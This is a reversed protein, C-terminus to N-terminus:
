YRYDNTYKKYIVGAEHWQGSSCMRAAMKFDDNGKKYLDRTVTIWKPSIRYAYQTGAFYGGQKTMEMQSPCNAIAQIQTKGNGDWAREDAFTSEDIIQKNVPDYVRWGANIRMGMHATYETYYSIRGDPEKRERRIPNVNHINETSFVELALMGDAKYERCISAIETWDLPQPFARLGTGYLKYNSAFSAQFRPLQNLQESVGRACEESAIRDQFPLQQNLAGEIINLAKSKNNDPVYTRNVVVLSKILPPVTIPAPDLVPIYVNMLKCSSLIVMALVLSFLKTKAM